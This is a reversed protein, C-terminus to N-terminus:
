TKAVEEVNADRVDIRCLRNRDSGSEFVDLDSCSVSIRQAKAPTQQQQRQQQSNVVPVSKKGKAM